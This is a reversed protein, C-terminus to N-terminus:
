NHAIELSNEVIPVSIEKPNEAAEPRELTRIFTFVALFILLVMLLKKM